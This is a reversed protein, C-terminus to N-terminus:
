LCDCYCLCIMLYSYSLVALWLNCSSYSFLFYSCYTLAPPYSSSLTPAYYAALLWLLASSLHPSPMSPSSLAYLLLLM